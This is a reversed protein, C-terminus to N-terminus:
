ELGLRKAMLPVIDWHAGSPYMVLCGGTLTQRRFEELAWKYAEQFMARTITVTPEQVEWDDSLADRIQEVLTNFADKAPDVAPRWAADTWGKRRYPRGSKAAEILNM